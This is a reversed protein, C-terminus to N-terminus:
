RLYQNVVPRSLKEDADKAGFCANSATDHIRQLSWVHVVKVHLM